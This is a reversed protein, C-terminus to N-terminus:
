NVKWKMSYINLSSSNKHEDCKECFMINQQTKSMFDLSLMSNFKESYIERKVLYNLPNFVQMYLLFSRNM